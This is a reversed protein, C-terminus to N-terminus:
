TERFYDHKESITVDLSRKLNFTANFEKDTYVKLSKDEALAIWEGPRVKITPEDPETNITVLGRRNKSNISYDWGANGGIIKTAKNLFDIMTFCLSDSKRFYAADVAKAKRLYKGMEIKGKM